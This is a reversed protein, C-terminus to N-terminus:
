FRYPRQKLVKGSVEEERGDKGWDADAGHKM